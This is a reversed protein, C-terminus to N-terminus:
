HKQSEEWEDRVNDKVGGTSETEKKEVDKKSAGGKEQNTAEDFEDRVNDRPGGPGEQRHETM